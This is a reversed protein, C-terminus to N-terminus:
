LNGIVELVSQLNYTGDPANKRFVLLYRYQRQPGSALNAWEKGLRLKQDTDDNKLHEGKTEVLLVNGRKTVLIFDPYHNRGYGNLAFGSKGKDINRHWFLLNDLTSVKRIFEMELENGAEEREYLHQGFSTAVRKPVISEPFKWVGKPFISGDDRMRQFSEAAGRQMLAKIKDKIAREYVHPRYLVDELRKADFSNLVRRVYDRVDQDSLPALRGLGPLLQSAIDDVRKEEPRALIYKLLEERMAIKDIPTIGLRYANQRDLDVKVIQDAAYADFDIKTDQESLRFGALLIHQDVLEDEGDGFIQNQIGQVFFQPLELDRVYPRLHEIIHYRKMKPDIDTPEGNKELAARTERQGRIAAAGMDRVSQPISEDEPDFVSEPEPDAETANDGNTTGGDSSSETTPEETSDTTGRDDFPAETSYDEEPTDVADPDITFDDEDDTDAGLPPATSTFLQGQEGAPLEAPTDVTPLVEEARYDKHSFGAVQLGAVINDLTKQFSESATLVYSSNLLMEKHPRVYPQRLIRGLIQEVDVASSKNALSALVYAFPCDWGEKLANVTIIFRVPCDRSMLDVGALENIEATKIKIQEEPIKLRVLEKKIHQFTTADAGKRPQAQFLVIPRIYEGGNKEERRAALELQKRLHLASGIVEERRSQNYVIVPLKVMHERKLEHAPVSSILNSNNKPTATLDLVFRPNLNRLMEVSLTSEANHSEDVVLVPRLKRIVNALASEDVGPLPEFGDTFHGDFATLAGNAQYVRRDDKRRARLSAMSTVMITLQDRVTGPSFNTGSMLEERTAVRFRGGFLAKLKLHYPHDPSRLNDLTQELLNGWPVLWVVLRPHNRYPTWNFISGLANIAIFTKGGATPVKVTLHIANPIVDRYPPMGTGTKPDYPGYKEEWFRRFTEKIKFDQAALLELFQELDQIVRDQYPKLEM